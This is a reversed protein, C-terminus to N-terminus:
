FKMKLSGGVAWAHGRASTADARPRFHGVTLEALLWDRHTPQEWKVQVGYDAVAVGSGQTGNCLAELSLLRQGAFAQYAGVISSWEFRRTRQTITAASLWRAALTPSLPHEYSVATTSGAREHLSWFLTQRLDVVDANALQWLRRYRGQLYPKLGGRLGARLDLTDHVRVGIGAFFAHEATSEPLLRQQRSFADPTDSVIERPDDRGVLVYAHEQLNPLRFRANARLGFDTGEGQRRRLTLSLRGDSVKGGAAFPKDGFWSDVGRALWEATSRVTRRAAEVVEPPEAPTPADGQAAAAAGLATLVLALAGRRGALWGTM